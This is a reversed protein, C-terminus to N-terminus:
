IYVGGGWTGAAGAVTASNSSAAQQGGDLVGGDTEPEARSQEQEHVKKLLGGAGRWGGLKGFERKRVGDNNRKRGDRM